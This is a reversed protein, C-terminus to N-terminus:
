PGLTPLQWGQGRIYRPLPLVRELELWQSLTGGAGGSTWFKVLNNNISRVMANPLTEHGGLAGDGKRRKRQQHLIPLICHISSSGDNPISIQILTRIMLSFRQTVETKKVHHPYTTSDNSRRNKWENRKYKMRGRQIVNMGKQWPKTLIRDGVIENPKNQTPKMHHIDKFNNTCVCYYHFYCLSFCFLYKQIINILSLFYM